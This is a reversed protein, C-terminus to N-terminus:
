PESTVSFTWSTELWSNGDFLALHCGTVRAQGREASETRAERVGWGLGPVQEVISNLAEALTADVLDIALETRYM